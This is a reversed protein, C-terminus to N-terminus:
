LALTSTNFVGTSVGEISLLILIVINLGSRNFIFGLGIITTYDIDIVFRIGM